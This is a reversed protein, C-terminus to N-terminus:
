LCRTDSPVQEVIHSWRHDENVNGYESAQRFLEASKQYDKIVGQGYYYCIALNYVAIIDGHAAAREFLKVAEIYNTLISGRKSLM